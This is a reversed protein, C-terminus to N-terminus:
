EDRSQSSCMVRHPNPVMIHSRVLGLFAKSIISTIVRIIMCTKMMVILLWAYGFYNLPKGRNWTDLKKGEGRFVIAKTSADEVEIDLAGFLGPRLAVILRIDTTHQTYAPFVTPQQSTSKYSPIDKSESM